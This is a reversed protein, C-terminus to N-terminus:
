KRFIWLVPGTSMIMMMKATTVISDWDDEVDNDSDVLSSEGDRDESALLEEIEKRSLRRKIVTKTVEM